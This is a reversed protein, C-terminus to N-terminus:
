PKWGDVRKEMTIILGDGQRIAFDMGVPTKGTPMDKLSATEWSGTLNNFHRVSRVNDFGVAALLGYSTLGPPTTLMGVYNTGPLLSYQATEGSSGVDLVGQAGAYIGISM